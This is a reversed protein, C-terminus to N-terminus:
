YIQFLDTKQQSIQNYFDITRQKPLDIILNKEIVGVWYGDKKHKLYYDCKGSLNCMDFPFAVKIVAKLQELTNTNDNVCICRGNALDEITYM